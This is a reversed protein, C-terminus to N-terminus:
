YHLTVVHDDQCANYGDIYTDILLDTIEDITFCCAKDDKVISYLYNDNRISQNCIVKKKILIDIVKSIVDKQIEEKKINAM